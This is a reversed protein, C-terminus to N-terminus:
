EARVSNAVFVMADGDAAVNYAIRLLTTWDDDFSTGMQAQIDEPFGFLGDDVLSCGIFITENAVSSFGSTYLEVISGPVDNPVWQFFTSVGTNADNAPTTLQFAPVEPVAISPFAAFQDGPITISLNTGASQNLDTEPVYAPGSLGNTRQLTAYTGNDDTLVLSDGASILTATDELIRFEDIAETGQEESARTVICTDVPPMYWDRVQQETLTKPLEGFLGRTSDATVGIPELKILGVSNILGDTTSSTTIGDLGTIGTSEFGGPTETETDTTNNTTALKLTASDCAVLLASVCILSIRNITM